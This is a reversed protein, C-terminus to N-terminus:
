INDLHAKAEKLKKLSNEQLIDKMITLSFLVFLADM